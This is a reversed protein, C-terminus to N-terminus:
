AQLKKGSFARGIIAVKLPMQFPVEPREVAAEATFNL